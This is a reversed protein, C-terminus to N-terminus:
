FNLSLGRGGLGGGWGGMRDWWCVCVCVHVVSAINLISASM